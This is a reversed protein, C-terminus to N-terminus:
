LQNPDYRDIFEVVRPYIVDLADNGKNKLVFLSRAHAQAIKKVQERRQKLPADWGDPNTAGNLASFFGKGNLLGLFPMLGGLKNTALGNWSEKLKTDGKLGEGNKVIGFLLKPDGIFSPMDSDLYNAFEDMYDLLMAKKFPTDAGGGMGPVDDFFIAGRLLADVNGNYLAAMVNTAGTFVRPDFVLKSADKLWDKAPSFGREEALSLLKM